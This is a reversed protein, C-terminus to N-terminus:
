HEGGEAPRVVILRDTATLRDPPEPGVAHVTGGRVVGLVLEDLDQPTLGVETEDVRRERLALGTEPVLLDQVLNAAQPQTAAVGLLRGAADASVIVADAGSRRVLHANETERVAAVIRVHPGFQRATLTVLVATDDRSTAV